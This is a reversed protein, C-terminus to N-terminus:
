FGKSSISYRECDLSDSICYNTAIEFIVFHDRNMELDFSETDSYDWTQAGVLLGLSASIIAQGCWLIAVQTGASM